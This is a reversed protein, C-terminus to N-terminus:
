QETSREVQMGNHADRAGCFPKHLSHATEATVGFVSPSGTTTRGKGISISGHNLFASAPKGRRKEEHPPACFGWVDERTENEVGREGKTERHKSRRGTNWSEKIELEGGGEGAPDGERSDGIGGQWEDNTALWIEPSWPKGSCVFLYRDWEHTTEAGEEALAGHSKSCIVSSPRFLDMECRQRPYEGVSRRRVRLGGSSSHCAWTRARRPSAHRNCTRRRPRDADSRGEKM